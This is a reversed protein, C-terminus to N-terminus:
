DEVKRHRLGVLFAKIRNRFVGIAVFGSILVGLVAQLILSGAGPDIYM